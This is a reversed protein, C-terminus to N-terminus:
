SVFLDVVSSKGCAIGGSLGIVTMRTGLWLFMISIAHFTLRKFASYQGLNVGLYFIVQLAVLVILRCLDILWGDKKHRKRALSTVRSDFLGCVFYSLNLIGAGVLLAVTQGM